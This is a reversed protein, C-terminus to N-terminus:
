LLSIAYSIRFPPALAMLPPIHRIQTTMTTGRSLTEARVIVERLPSPGQPAQDPVVLLRFHPTTEITTPIPAQPAHDPPAMPQPCRARTQTWTLQTLNPPRQVGEHILWSRHCSSVILLVQYYNSAFCRDIPLVLPILHPSTSSPSFLSTRSKRLSSAVHSPIWAGVKSM